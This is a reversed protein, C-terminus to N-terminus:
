KQGDGKILSLGVGFMTIGYSLAYWVDLDDGIIFILVTAIIAFVVSTANLLMYPKM